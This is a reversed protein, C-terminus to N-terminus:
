LAASFKFSLQSAVPFARSPCGRLERKFKSCLSANYSAGAEKREKLIIVLYIAVVESRKFPWFLCFGGSATPSCSEAGARSSERCM